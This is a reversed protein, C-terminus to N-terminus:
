KKGVEGKPTKEAEVESHAQNCLIELCVQYDPIGREIEIHQVIM